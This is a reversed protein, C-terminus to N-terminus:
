NGIIFSATQSPLGTVQDTIGSVNKWTIGGVPIITHFVSAYAGNVKGTVKVVNYGPNIYNLSNLTSQNFVFHSNVANGAFMQVNDVYFTLDTYTIAPNDFYVDVHTFHGGFTNYTTDSYLMRLVGTSIFSGKGTPLAPAIFSFDDKIVSTSNSISVSNVSKVYEKKCALISLALTTALFLWKM